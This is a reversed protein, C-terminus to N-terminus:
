LLRFWSQPAGGSSTYVSNMLRLYKDGYIALDSEIMIHRDEGVRLGLAVVDSRADELTNGLSLRGFLAEAISEHQDTYTLVTFGSFAQNELWHM